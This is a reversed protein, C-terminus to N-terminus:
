SYQSSKWLICTQNGCSTEYSDIIITGPIWCGRRTGRPVMHGYHVSACAPLMLVRLIMLLLQKVKGQSSKSHIDSFLKDLNIRGEVMHALPILSLNDVEHCAGKGGTM